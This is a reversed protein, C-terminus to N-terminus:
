RNGSRSPGGFNYLFGVVFQSLENDHFTIRSDSEGVFLNGTVQWRGSQTPLTYLVTADFAVTDADRRENYLPNPQDYESQGVLLNGVFTWSPSLYAYSLRVGLFDRSIAAGNRDENRFRIQPEFIHQPSLMFRYSLRAVFQDGSRDLLAQCALDCGLAPDSGSLEVDIDIERAQIMFDFNSGLVNGWEFRFGSAERDTEARPEGALYPDAWVEVAPESLLFGVQYIGSDRQIRWGLQNAFDMTLQDELSSGLFFQSRNRLTYKIEAGVVPHATDDSQPSQFISSVTDQGVDIIDNGVVTNSKVDTYGAGFLVFGSWGAEEPVPEVAFAISTLSMLCSAALASKAFGSRNTKM